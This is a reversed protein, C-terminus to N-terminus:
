QLPAQRLKRLTAVDASITNAKLRKLLIKLGICHSQQKEYDASAEIHAIRQKLAAITQQQSAEQAEAERSTKELWQDYQTASVDAKLLPLAKALTAFDQAHAEIMHDTFYRILTHDNSALVGYKNLLIRPYLQKFVVLKPDGVNDTVYKKYSAIAEGASVPAPVNPQPIPIPYDQVVQRQLQVLRNRCSYTTDGPCIRESSLPLEALSAHSFDIFHAEDLRDVDTLTAM